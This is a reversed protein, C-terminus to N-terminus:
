HPTAFGGSQTAHVNISPTGPAGIGSELAGFTLAVTLAVGALLAVVTRGRGSRPATALPRGCGTCFRNADTAPRGCAPCTRTGM